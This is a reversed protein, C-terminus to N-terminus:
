GDDNSLKEQTKEATREITDGAAEIDQGIGRTTNCGTLAIAFTASLLAYTLNKM